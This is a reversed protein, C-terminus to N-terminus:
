VGNGTKKENGDVTVLERRWKGEEKWKWEGDVKRAIMQEDSNETAMERQLRKNRQEDWKRRKKTEMSAAEQDYNETKQM